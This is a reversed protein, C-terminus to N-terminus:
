QVYNTIDLMQQEIERIQAEKDEIQTTMEM